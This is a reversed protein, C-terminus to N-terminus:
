VRGRGNINHQWMRSFEPLLLHLDGDQSELISSLTRKNTNYIYPEEDIWKHQTQPREEGQRKM